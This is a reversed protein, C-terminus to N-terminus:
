HSIAPSAVWSALVQQAKQATGWGATGFDVARGNHGAPTLRTGSVEGRENHSGPRGHSGPIWVATSRIRLSRHREKRWRLQAARTTKEARRSGEGVHRARRGFTRDMAGTRPVTRM